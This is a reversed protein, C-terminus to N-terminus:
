SPSGSAASSNGEATAQEKAAWTRVIDLLQIVVPPPMKLIMAPVIDAKGGGKSAPREVDWECLHDSLFQAVIQASEKGSTARGIKNIYEENEEFLAPRYRGSVIPLNDAQVRGSVPDTMTPQTTFPLTYGDDIVLRAM